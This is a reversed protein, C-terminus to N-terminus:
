SGSGAARTWAAAVRVADASPRVDHVRVGWAGAAAALATVAASAGDRAEPAVPEGDPGALLRGLFRKRSAAVLVPRGLSVLADLHALLAWNHPTDKAFGLGADVVVQSADVGADVLAALRGALAARVQGVVDDYHALADMTDSHGRWHMLVYPVGTEAVLAAMGPDALGGSVDNVMVAGAELAQRAVPARTTDISVRAGEAALTRVVPLVRRLEEAEPVRRAGPRTSEGGVDVLDAGEALLDLGRRVAADPEYWSGGDSFSDPTVNVVGMVLCRGADPGTLGPVVRAGPATVARTM